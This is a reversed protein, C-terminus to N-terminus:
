ESEELRRRAYGTIITRALDSDRADLSRRVLGQNSPALILM